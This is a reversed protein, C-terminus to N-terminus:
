AYNIKRKSTLGWILTIGIVVCLGLFIPKDLLKEVTYLGTMQVTLAEIRDSLIFAFLLAPRSFKYRKALLGIISCVVLMFYDEWGGTYQVCALVIFGLL